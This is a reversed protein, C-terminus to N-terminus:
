AYTYIFPLNYTQASCKIAVTALRKQRRYPNHKNSINISFELLISQTKNKKYELWHHWLILDIFFARYM